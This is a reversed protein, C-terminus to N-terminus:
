RLRRRTALNVCGSCLGAHHRARIQAVTELKDSVMTERRHVITTDTAIFSHLFSSSRSSRGRRFPTQKNFACPLLSPKTTYGPGNAVAECGPRASGDVQKFPISPHIVSPSPYSSSRGRSALPQANALIPVAAGAPCWRGRTRIQHNLFM